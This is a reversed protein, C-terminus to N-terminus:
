QWYVKIEPMPAAQVALVGVLAQRAVGALKLRDLLAPLDAHAEARLEPSAHLQRVAEVIAAAEALHQEEARTNPNM